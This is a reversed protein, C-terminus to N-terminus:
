GLNYEYAGGRTSCGEKDSWVVYCLFYIAIDCVCSYISCSTYIIFRVETLDKPVRRYFDVSAMASRRGGGGYINNPASMKTNNYM